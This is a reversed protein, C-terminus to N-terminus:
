ANDNSNKGNDEDEKLVGIQIYKKKWEEEKEKDTKM